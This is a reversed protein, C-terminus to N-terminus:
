RTRRQVTCPLTHGERIKTMIHNSATKTYIKFPRWIYSTMQM